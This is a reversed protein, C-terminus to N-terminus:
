LRTHPAIVSMFTSSLGRTSPCRADIGALLVEPVTSLGLDGFEGEALQVLLGVTFALDMLDLPEGMEGAFRSGAVRRVHQVKAYQRPLGRVANEAIDLTSHVLQEFADMVPAWRGYKTARKTEADAIGRRAIRRITDAFEEATLKAQEKKKETRKM